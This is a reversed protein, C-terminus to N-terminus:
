ETWEPREKRAFARFAYGEGSLAWGFFEIFNLRLGHVAGSMIGLLLNITHGFALVVIALLLGIGPLGAGIDGALANFTGALSASALGLAFLRMYSLIDGFLTTIRTLAMGGDALRLLWGAPRAVPHAVPRALAGAVFVAALGGALLVAGPTAPGLWLMLGGVSAAIWGIKGLREGLTAARLAALANALSIHIVGIVISVAMMTDVDQVDIVAVGDLVGGPAPAMGFYSGALVGYVLAAGLVAWLIARTKRGAAGTGLRRRLLYVIGLLVLAYGADALIMAFFVAFSAFVLLSPDWGRYPPTTYFSTLAGAGEFRGPNALLTPPEDGPQPVQLTIALGRAEALALLDTASAQPAWGAVAFVSGDSLTMRTAATRAEADEAEGLRLGLALLDRTLEAREAEAIEIEIETEVLDDQLQALRRAGTHTRPVPLLDAPPEHEAVVALFLRTRDRGVVAWPLAVRDLARREKIPLIYFWLKRGLLVDESPLEFDGFALLGDIRERLFDHRDRARRLREKNALAADVSAQLDFAHRGPWPRLQRPAATLHRFAANARRRAPDSDPELPSPASLPVLHLCGLDQLAALVADREHALGCLAVRQMPVISM